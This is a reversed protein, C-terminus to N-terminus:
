ALAAAWRDSEVLVERWTWSREDIVIATTDDDARGALLGAVTEAPPTTM